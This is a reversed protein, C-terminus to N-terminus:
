ANLKIKISTYPTIKEYNSLNIEPHEEVLRAKDIVKSYGEIKNLIGLKSIYKGIALDKSLVDRLTEYEAQAQKYKKYLTLLKNLDKDKLEIM